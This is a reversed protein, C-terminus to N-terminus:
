DSWHNVGARFCSLSAWHCTLCDSLAERKKKKLLWM